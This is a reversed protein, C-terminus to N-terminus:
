GACGIRICARVTCLGPYGPMISAESLARTILSIGGLIHRNGTSLPVVGVTDLRGVHVKGRLLGETGYGTGSEWVEPPARGHQRNKKPPEWGYVEAKLSKSLSKHM